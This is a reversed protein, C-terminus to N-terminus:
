LKIRDTMWADLAAQGAAEVDDHWDAPVRVPSQAPDRPALRPAKGPVVRFLLGFGAPSENVIVCTGVGSSRRADYTESLLAAELDAMARATSGAADGSGAASLGAQADTLAAILGDLHLNLSM